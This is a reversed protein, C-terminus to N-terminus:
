KTPWAAKPAILKGAGEADSPGLGVLFGDQMQGVKFINSMTQDRLSIEGLVTDFTGSKMEKAIDDGNLSGVREIAKELSQLGAYTVISGAFDPDRGTVSKHLAIYDQTSASEPNLGGHTLLQNVSDGFREKFMPFAGGIGVYMMNPNFNHLQAQETIAITDPPYSFAVFAKADRVEALISSFDQTGVPYSRDYTLKFGAQDFASRAAKSLDIGFGDAVSIMAVEDGIHGAERAKILQDVVPQAWSIATGSLWFSRPWRKSLDPVRDTIGTATILPYGYRDFLPGVALNLATGWPSLLIDVKDQTILREVARVAEESSSRDDYEIVEIPYRKDGILLGGKEKLQHVWLQYNPLTTTLAGGSNPGTMSVAYGIRVVGDANQAVVPATFTGAALGIAMMSVLINRRNLKM